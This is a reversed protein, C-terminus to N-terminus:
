FEFLNTSSVKNESRSDPIFSIPREYSKSVHRKLISLKFKIFKKSITHKEFSTTLTRNCINYNM